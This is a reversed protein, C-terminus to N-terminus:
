GRGAPEQESPPEKCALQGVASFAKGYTQSSRPRSPHTPTGSSRKTPSFNILDVDERLEHVTRSRPTSLQMPRSIRRPNHGSREALLGILAEDLGTAISARGARVPM